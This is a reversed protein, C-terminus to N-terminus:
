DSSRHTIILLLDVPVAHSSLHVCRQLQRLKRSVVAQHVVAAVADLGRHHSPLLDINIHLGLYTIMIM